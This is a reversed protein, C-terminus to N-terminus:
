YSEIFPNDNSVRPRSFSPTIGLHYLMAPMTMGKMPNGNDSRLHVGRAKTRNAVSARDPSEHDYIAWGVIKRSWIDIIVYAYFFIGLVTSKMYTIDWSWVHDPGTTVVESPPTM